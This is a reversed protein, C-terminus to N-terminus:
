SWLAVKQFVLGSNQTNPYKDHAFLYEASRATHLSILWLSLVGRGQGFHKPPATDKRIGKKKNIAIGLRNGYMVNVCYM